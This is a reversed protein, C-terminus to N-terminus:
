APTGEIVNVVSSTPVVRTLTFGSQGFLAEYERASRERGGNMAMMQLDSIFAEHAAPADSPDEPLVREVLVLKAERTMAHRCNRLISIARDDDWDHIVRALVYADGGEPIQGFADGGVVTCRTGCGADALNQRAKEAVHPLDFLVGALTSNAELLAILFSGNGGGVDIVKRFQAFSYSSLVAKDYLNALKGMAEDFVEAMAPHTARYTWVDTGFVANFAIEGTRVSHMLQGWAARCEEGLVVRVWARLSDPLDTRLTEGMPTLSYRGEDDRTCVHAAVLACLVRDLSPAHVGTMRALDECRAPGPQLLDALGLEAAIYIAHAVGFGSVMRLMSLHATRASDTM